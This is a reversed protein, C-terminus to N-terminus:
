GRRASRKPSRARPAAKGRGAKELTCRTVPQAVRYQTIIARMEKASTAGGKV